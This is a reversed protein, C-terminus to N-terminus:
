RRRVIATAVRAASWGLLAAYGLTLAVVAWPPLQFIGALRVILRGLPAPPLLSLLAGWGLLGAIGATWAPEERRLLRWLGAVAPVAWWGGLWTGTAILAAQLSISGGRLTM